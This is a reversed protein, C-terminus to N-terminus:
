RGPREMIRSKVYENLGCLNACARRDRDLAAQVKQEFDVRTPLPTQEDAYIGYWWDALRKAARGPKRKTKM